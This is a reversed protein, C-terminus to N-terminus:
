YSRGYDDVRDNKKAPPTEPIAILVMRYLGTPWEIVDYGSSGDRTQFYRRILSEGDIAIGVNGQYLNRIAVAHSIWVRGNVQAYLDTVSMPKLKSLLTLTEVLSDRTQKLELLASELEQQKELRVKLEQYKEDLKQTAIQVLQTNEM